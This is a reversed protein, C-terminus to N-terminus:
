FQALVKIGAAAANKRFALARKPSQSLKRIGQDTYTLLAIYTIKM